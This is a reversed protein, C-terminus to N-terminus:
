TTHAHNVETENEVLKWATPKDGHRKNQSYPMKRWVRGKKDLGYVVTGIIPVLGIDNTVVDVTCPATAIQTFPPVTKTRAKM